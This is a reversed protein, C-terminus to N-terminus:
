YLPPYNTFMPDCPDPRDPDLLKEFDEHLTHELDNVRMQLVFINKWEAFNNNDTLQEFESPKVRSLHTRKNDNETIQRKVVEQRMIQEMTASNTLGSVISSHSHNM